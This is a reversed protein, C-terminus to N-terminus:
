FLAISSLGYWTDWRSNFPPRGTALRHGPHHSTIPTAANQMPIATQINPMINLWYGGLSNGMGSETSTSCPM